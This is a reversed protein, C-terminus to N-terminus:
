VTYNELWERMAALPVFVPMDTFKTRLYRVLSGAAEPSGGPSHLLVDISPGSLDRCVGMLGQMDQLTISSGPGGKGFWDACYIITPWGPDRGM